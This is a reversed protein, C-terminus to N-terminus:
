VRVKSRLAALKADGIGRVDLLDDVSHFPGHESRYDIISAATSPGVGPLTDLQEATATNLDVPGASTARESRAGGAQAAGPDGTPESGGTPDVPPPTTTEGVKPVYLRQGDALPAALNLRDRDAGARMGGAVRILDNVRAGQPLRYLGPHTVSGAADVVLSQPQTTAAPSSTSALGTRSSAAPSARPLTTEVAPPPPRLLWVAVLLALVGGLGLVVLRGPSIPVRALLADIRDRATARPVPRGPAGSAAGLPACEGQDAAGSPSPPVSSFGSM